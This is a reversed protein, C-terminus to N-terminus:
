RFLSTKHCIYYPVFHFDLSIRFVYNVSRKKLRRPPCNLQKYCEGCSRNNRKARTMCTKKKNNFDFPKEKKKAFKRKRVIAFCKSIM